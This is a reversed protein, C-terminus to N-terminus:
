SVRRGHVHFVRVLEGAFAADVRDDVPDHAGDQLREEVEVEPEPPDPGLVDGGFARDQEGGVVAAEGVREHDADAEAPREPEDGLHLQELLAPLRAQQEREAGERDPAALRVLERHLGSAHDELAAARDADEGLARAHPGPREALGLAPDAPERELGARRDHGTAIMPVSSMRLPQRMRGRRTLTRQPRASVKGRGTSPSAVGCTAWSIVDRTQDQTWSWHSHSPPIAGILVAATMPAPLQPM